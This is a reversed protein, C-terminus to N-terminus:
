KIEDYKDANFDSKLITGTAGDSKRKVKMKDGGTGGSKNPPYVQDRYGKLFDRTEELAAKLTPADMKNANFMGEFKTILQGSGRAGVHARMTGTQLLNIATRLKVYDPDSGEGVKGALFDQWRSGIAGLKDALKKDSLRTIADDIKPIITKSTEGLQKTATTMKHVDVENKAIYDRVQNALKKDGSILNWNNADDGIKEAWNKVVDETGGPNNLNFTAVPAITKTREYAAITALDDATAKGAAKKRMAELYQVEAGPPNTPKNVKERQEPTMGQSNIREAADPVSEGPLRLGNLYADSVGMQKLQNVGAAWEPESTAVGLIQGAKEAWKQKEAIQKAIKDAKAKQEALQSQTTLGEQHQNMILQPTGGKGTEDPPIYHPGLESVFEQLQQPTAGHSKLKQAAQQLKAQYDEEGQVTPTFVGDEDYTGFTNAVDLHMKQLQANQADILKQKQDLGQYFKSYIADTTAPDVSLLKEQVGPKMLPHVYSPDDPAINPDTNDKIIKGIQNQSWQKRYNTIIGEAKVPDLSRLKGVIPKEAGNDDFLQGGAESLATQMDEDRKQDRQLKQNESLIRSTQADREKRQSMLDSLQASKLQDNLPDFGTIISPDLRSM